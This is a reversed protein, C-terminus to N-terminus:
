ESISSELAKDCNVDAVPLILTFTTDGPESAMEIRGGHQQIIGFSLSLGLGTGEGVAKTTFFPDFIKKKHEESIGTGTDHIRIFIHENDQMGTSITISGFKGLAQSANVLLNLLVQSIKPGICPILPIDGYNKIVEANHKLQYNVINLTSELLDHVDTLEKHEQASHSFSKLDAVIQKVRLVGNNSDSILQRADDILFDVDIKKELQHLKKLESAHQNHDILNIAGQYTEMLKLFDALYTNLSKLNIDIFGVPNNIEHAVGAALQGLSAMKEAHILQAHTEKLRTNSEQLEQTRAAVREELIQERNHLTIHTHVRALLEDRNFPTTVYDKAGLKLARSITAPDNDASVVIVTPSHPLPNTRLEELVGFGSLIPMNLDLLVLDFQDRNLTAMCEAGDCATTVTYLHSLLASVLLRNPSSDDVVLVKPTSAKM